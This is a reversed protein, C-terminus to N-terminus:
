FISIMSLYVSDFYILPKRLQKVLRDFNCLGMNLSARSSHKENLRNNNHSQTSRQTYSSFLPYNVLLPSGRAVIFAYALFLREITMSFVRVISQTNNFKWNELFNIRLEINFGGSTIVVCVFAFAFPPFFGIADGNDLSCSFQSLYM